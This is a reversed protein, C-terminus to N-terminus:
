LSCLVYSCFVCIRYNVSLYSCYISFPGWVNCFAGPVSLVGDRMYSCNIVHYSQWRCPIIEFVHMMYKQLGYRIMNLNSNLNSNLNLGLGLYSVDHMFDLCHSAILWIIGNYQYWVLCFVFRPCNAYKKPSVIYTLTTNYLNFTLM